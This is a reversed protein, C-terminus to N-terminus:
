PFIEPIIGPTIGPTTEPITEPITEPRFGDQFIPQNAKLLNVYTEMLKLARSDVISIGDLKNYDLDEITLNQNNKNANVINKITNKILEWDEDLVTNAVLSDNGSVSSVHITVHGENDTLNDETFILFPKGDVIFYRVLEVSMGKDNLIEIKM